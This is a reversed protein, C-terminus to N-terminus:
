EKKANSQPDLTQLAREVLVGDCKRSDGPRQGADKMQTLVNHIGFQVMILECSVRAVLPGLFLLPIGIGPHSVRGGYPASEGILAILAFAFFGAVEIWFLVEIVMPTLFRRFRLYEHATGEM